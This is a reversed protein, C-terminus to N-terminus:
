LRVCMQLCACVACVCVRMCVCAVCVCARACRIASSNDHFGIVSNRPNAKLPAKVVQMLSEPAAQGDIKIVGGFFWHRSRPATAHAAHSTRHTTYPSNTPVVSDLEATDNDGSLLNYSWATM